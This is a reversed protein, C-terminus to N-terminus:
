ETKLIYADFREKAEDNLEQKNRESLRRYFLYAQEYAEEEDYGEVMMQGAVHLEACCGIGDIILPRGAIDNLRVQKPDRPTLKRSTAM